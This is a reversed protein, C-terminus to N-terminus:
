AFAPGAKIIKSKPRLKEFPDAREHQPPETVEWFLLALDDGSLELARALRGIMDLGRPTFSGHSWGTELAAKMIADREHRSNEEALWKLDHETADATYTMLALEADDLSLEMKTAQGVLQSLEPPSIGGTASAVYTMAALIKDPDAPPADPDPAAGPWIGGTILAASILGLGMAVTPSLHRSHDEMAIMPMDAPAEGTLCLEALWKLTDGTGSGSTTVAVAAVSIGAATWLTMNRM